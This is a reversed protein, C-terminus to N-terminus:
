VKKLAFIWDISSSNLALKAIRERRAERQEIDEEILRTGEGVDREEDEEDLNVNTGEGLINDISDRKKKVKWASTHREWAPRDDEGAGELDSWTYGSDRKRGAFSQVIHVPLEGSLLSDVELYHDRILALHQYYGRLQHILGKEYDGSEEYICDLSSPLTRM